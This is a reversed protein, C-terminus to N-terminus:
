RGALVELPHLLRLGASRAAQSACSFGTVLTDESTPAHRAWGQKWVEISQDRHEVEHGFLGGMGCCSCELCELHLGAAKFAHQWAADANGVLAREICHGLLRWRGSGRAPLDEAHELLWEQPLNVQPLDDRGLAIKYEDRWLLTAAPDVGVLPTDELPELLAVNRAAVREFADLCGRVHLPKGGPLPAIIAPLRGMGEAVDLLAIIVRPAFAATLRDPIVVLDAGRADRVSRVATGRHALMHALTPRAIPPVDVIGAARLLAKAHGGRALCWEIARSRALAPLMSELRTAFLDRAPRLYRGYYREYFVSRM